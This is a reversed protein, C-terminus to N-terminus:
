KRRLHFTLERVFRVWGDLFDAFKVFERMIAPCIADCYQDVIAGLQLVPSISMALGQEKAKARSIGDFPFRFGWFSLGSLETFLFSWRSLIADIRVM